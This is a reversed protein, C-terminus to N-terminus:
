EEGQDGEEVGSPPQASSPPPGGPASFLSTLSFGASSAHNVVDGWRRVATGSKAEERPVLDPRHERLAGLFRSHLSAAQDQPVGSVAYPKERLFRLVHPLGLPSCFNQTVAVNVDELNLVLHWWGRPVYVIDGAEVVGEYVMQLPAGAPGGTAGLPRGARCRKSGAAEAAQAGGGRAAGAAANRKDRAKAHWSYFQLLWEMVSLPVCVESGDQAAWVGPPVMDPPVLIWKKRGQLCCNWAATGNPDQHFVSGSKKGGIILWRYDPRAGEGLVEFLDRGKGFVEPVCYTGLAPVKVAFEKDFLYLPNDESSHSCYRLYAALTMSFGACHFALRGYSAELAQASWAGAEFGPWRGAAAGKLVCPLNPGEWQAEFEAVGPCGSFRPLNDFALWPGEVRASACRHAHHLLDSYIGRAHAAAGGARAAHFASGRCAAFTSRWSFFYTFDGKYESLVLTRWLDEYCSFAYLARSVASLTFLAEGPLYSLVEVLLQDSLVSLVGLGASRVSGGGGGGELLENGSPRVTDM